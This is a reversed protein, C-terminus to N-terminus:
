IFERWFDKNFLKLINSNYYMGFKICKLIEKFETNKFIKTIDKLNEKKDCIAMVWQTLGYQGNEDVINNLGLNPTFIVKPLGFHGNNTHTSYRIQLSKDKYISYIVPYKFIDDEGVNKNSVHKKDAGYNSRDSIIHQKIDSSILKKIKKFYGNPIFEWETLNIINDKNYEDIIITKGNYETKQLLYYDFRTSCKFLKKGCKENNINLYILNYKKVLKFLKSKIQRWLPPHVYLLYGGKKVYDTISLKMFKDWIKHGAGKNSSKDNYPPNGIVADFGNLGFKEKIDLELTNGEFYNLKLNKDQNLLLESIYINLPNIDAYYLCNKVIYEYRKIEVPEFDKLGEMFRDIIDLLFGSKGCCPEFVTHKPNSWFKIPIKDLMDKRLEYPTSVEANNKKEIEQPILYNDFLKSLKKRNYKNENFLQKIIKTVRKIEDNNILDTKDLINMITTYININNFCENLHNTLLLNLKINKEIFLLIESFDYNEFDISLVCILPILFKVINLLDVKKEIEENIKWVMLKFNNKILLINILTKDYHLINPNNIVDEYSLNYIVLLCIHLSM